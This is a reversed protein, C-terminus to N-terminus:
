LAALGWGVALGYLGAVDDDATIGTAGSLREAASVGPLVKFIDGLRAVILAVAWPWGTLGIVAVLTGATEDICVWGPDDHAGAFPRAAWLSTAILTGAVAATVWWAADVALLLGGIVAGLAAGLTGAGADSGRLRGPILGLGLSSAVIRHM